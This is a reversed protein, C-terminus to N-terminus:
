RWHQGPSTRARRESSGDVLDEAPYEHHGTIWFSSSRFDKDLFDTLLLYLSHAVTPHTEETKYVIHHSEPIFGVLLHDNARWEATTEQRTNVESQM